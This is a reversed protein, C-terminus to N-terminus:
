VVVMCIGYIDGCCWWLWVLVVGVMFVLVVVVVVVCVGGWRVLMM